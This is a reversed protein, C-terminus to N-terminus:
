VMVSVYRISIYRIKKSFVRLVCAMLEHAGGRIGAEEPVLRQPRHPRTNISTGM